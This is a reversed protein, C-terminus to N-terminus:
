RCVDFRVAHLRVAHIPILREAVGRSCYGFRKRDGTAFGGGHSRRRQYDLSGPQVAEGFRRQHRFHRGDACFAYDGRSREMRRHCRDSQRRSRLIGSRTSRSQRLRPSRYLLRGCSINGHDGRRYDAQFPLEHQRGGANRFVCLDSRGAVVIRGGAHRQGFHAM